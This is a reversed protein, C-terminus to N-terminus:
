KGPEMSYNPISHQCPLWTRRRIQLIYVTIFKVAPWLFPSAWPIFSTLLPICLLTLLTPPTPHEPWSKSFPIGLALDLNNSPNHWLLAFSPHFFTKSLSSCRLSRFASLWLDSINIGWPIQLTRPDGHFLRDCPRTFTVCEYILMQVQHCTGKKFYVSVALHSSIGYDWLLIM